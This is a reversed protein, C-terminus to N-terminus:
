EGGEGEDSGPQEGSAEPAGEGEEGELGELGEEPEEEVEPEELETPATVSAIVTDPDDNYTVGRLTPLDSVRISDGVGLASVDVDVHDPLEAPLATVSVEHTPQDLVGGDLAVGTPEGTLVVTSVSTIPQDMRIELLDIHLLTDRVPHRQLDKLIAPTRSKAGPAVVDFIAHRGGADHIAHRLAKADIAIAQPERGNGYFVGPIKGSRRVAQAASSKGPTRAEIELTVREM